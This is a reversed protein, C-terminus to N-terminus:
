RARRSATLGVMLLGGLLMAWSGPEPVPAAVAFDYHFTGGDRVSLNSGLNVLSFQVSYIGPASGADAYFTPLFDFTNGAGLLFLNSEDFLDADGNAAVKLGPTIYELKLAVQVGDLASSWRGSSSGYLVAQASGPAADALTQISSMGLYSYEHHAASSDLVGSVLQGAFDGSGPTLTLAGPLPDIRAYLEPIRNNANTGNVVPADATGVLSYAGISHFHNGHDFLLTLRGYNPNDLGAYTGSSLTELSDIGIYFGIGEAGRIPESALASGATTGLLLALLLPRPHIM